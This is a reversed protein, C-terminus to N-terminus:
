SCPNAINDFTQFTTLKVMHNPIAQSFHDWTIGSITPQFTALLCDTAKEVQINNRTDARGDCLNLFVMLRLFSRIGCNPNTARFEEVLFFPFEFCSPKWSLKEYDEPKPTRIGIGSQDFLKELHYDDDENRSKPYDRDQAKDPTFGAMSQFIIVLFYDECLEEPEQRFLIIATRLVKSVHLKEPDNQYPFLLGMRLLTWHLIPIADALFPATEAPLSSQLFDNLNSESWGLDLWSSTKLDHMNKDEDSVNQQSQNPAFPTPCQKLGFNSDMVPEVPVLQWITHITKCFSM